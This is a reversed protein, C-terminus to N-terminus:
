EGLKVITSNISQQKLDNQTKQAKQRDSFPGLYVKTISNKTALKPNFGSLALQAKLDNASDSNSFAGVQVIFSINKNPTTNSAIPKDQLNNVVQQITKNEQPPQKIPAIQQKTTPQQNNAQPTDIQKKGQLVDYFDYTPESSDPKNQTTTSSAEAMKTSPVLVIPNIASEGNKNDSQTAQTSTFPNPAKNLFFVVGGAIGIGILIGLLVKGM